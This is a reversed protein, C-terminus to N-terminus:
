HRRRGIGRAILGIVVGILAVTVPAGVMVLGFRTLDEM